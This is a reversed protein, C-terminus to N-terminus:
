ESGPPGKGSGRHPDWSMGLSHPNPVPLLAARTPPSAPSCAPSPLTATVPLAAQSPVSPHANPHSCPQVSMPHSDREQPGVAEGMLPVSAGKMSQLSEDAQSCNDTDGQVSYHYDVPLFTRMIRPNIFTHKFFVVFFVRFGGGQLPLGEPLFPHHPPPEQWLRVAAKAGLSSFLASILAYESVADGPRCHSSGWGLSM